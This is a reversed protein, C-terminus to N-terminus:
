FQSYSRRANVQVQQHNGDLNLVLATMRGGFVCGTDIGFCRGGNENTWVRMEGLGVVNHGFIVDLSGHYQDAWYYSNTPQVFGPFSMSLMKHTQNDLYRVMMMTEKTQRVMPVGPLIGAHVVVANFEPLEIKYPLATLWLREATGLDAITAEQDPSRHMPNVYQPNTNARDLHNWRRLLKNDHNGMVAEAGIEMLYRVCGPSAPGRDVIDGAVILRDVGQEYGVLAVLERLEDLCGHVDGVVVTRM